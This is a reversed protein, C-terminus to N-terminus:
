SMSYLRCPVTSGCNHYVNGAKQTFRRTPIIGETNFNVTEMAKCRPCFAVVERISENVLWLAKPEANKTTKKTETTM